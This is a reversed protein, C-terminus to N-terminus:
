LIYLVGGHETWHYKALDPERACENIGMWQNGDFPCQERMAISIAQSLGQEQNGPNGILTQDCSQKGM